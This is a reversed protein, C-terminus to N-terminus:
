RMTRALIELEKVFLYPNALTQYRHSFERCREAHAEPDAIIAEAKERLDNGNFRYFAGDFRDMDPLLDPLYASTLFPTENRMARETRDHLGTRSSTVDLIGYASYYRSQNYAMKQGRFFRHSPSAQKAYRDWGSGHIQLPLDRLAEVVQLSKWVRAYLDMRSHLIHFPHTGPALHGDMWNEGELVQDVVAHFELYDERALAGRLTEAAAMFIRYTDPDLAEKWEAEMEEPPRINKLFVFYDGHREGLPLDRCLIPARVVTAPTKRRLHRNAYLAFERAGYLHACYRSDLAHNAPMHSPHDGHISILPIELHDWLSREPEGIVARTGLGQHTLVFEVGEEKLHILQKWWEPDDLDVTTVRRGCGDLISALADNFVSFPDNDGGSWNLLVAQM